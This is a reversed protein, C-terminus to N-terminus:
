LYNQRALFDRIKLFENMSLNSKDYYGQQSIENLTQYVIMSVNWSNRDTKKFIAELKTVITDVIHVIASEKDYPLIGKSNDSIIKIVEPPFGRNNLRKLFREKSVKKDVDYCHYYLGGAMCLMRDVDILTACEGAINAVKIAHYYEALSLRKIDLLMPYNEDIITEFSIRREKSFINCLHNYVLLLFFASILSSISYIIINTLDIIFSTLYSFTFTVLFLSIAYLISILVLHIFRNTKLYNGLLISISFIFLYGFFTYFSLGFCLSYVCSFYICSVLAFGSDMGAILILAMIGIPFYFDPFKASAYIMCFSIFFTLFYKSYNSGIYISGNLRMRTIYVIYMVLFLITVLILSYLEDIMIKNTVCFFVNVLFFLAATLLLVLIRILSAGFDDWKSEKAM